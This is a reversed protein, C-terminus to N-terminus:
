PSLQVVFGDSNGATLLTGFDLTERFSGAVDIRGLSDIGIGVVEQSDAGGVRRAWTVSFDSPDLKMTIGDRGGGPALTMGGASFDGETYGGVVISSGDSDIALLADNESGGLLTGGLIVGGSSVRLLMADSKGAPTLTDAGATVTTATSGVVILGGRADLTVDAWLRRLAGGM